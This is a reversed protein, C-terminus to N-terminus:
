DVQSINMRVLRREDNPLMISLGKMKDVTLRRILIIDDRRDHEDLLSDTINNLAEKVM